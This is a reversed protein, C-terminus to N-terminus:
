LLGGTGLHQALATRDLVLANALESLEESSQATSAPLPGVARWLTALVRQRREGEAKRWEALLLSRSRSRNPSLSAIGDNLLQPHYDPVPVRDLLRHASSALPDYLSALIQPAVAARRATLCDMLLLAREKPPWDALFRLIVQRAEDSRFLSVLDTLYCYCG